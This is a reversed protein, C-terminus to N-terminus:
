ESSFVNSLEAKCGEAVNSKREHIHLRSALSFNHLLEAIVCLSYFCLLYNRSRLAFLAYLSYTNLIKNYYM